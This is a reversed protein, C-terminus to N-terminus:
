LLIVRYGSLAQCCHVDRTYCQAILILESAPPGVGQSICSWDDSILSLSRHMRLSCFTLSPGSYWMAQLIVQM